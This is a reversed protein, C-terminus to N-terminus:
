TFKSSLKSNIDSSSINITETVTGIFSTSGTNSLSSSSSNISSSPSGTSPSPASFFLSLVESESLARNFFAVKTINAEAYYDQNVMGAILLNGGTDGGIGDGALSWRADEVGNVYLTLYDGDYTQVVHYWIPSWSHEIDTFGDQYHWGTSNAIHPRFKNNESASLAYQTGDNGKSILMRHTDSGGTISVYVSISMQQPNFLGNGTGCDVYDDAGDFNIFSCDQNESGNNNCYGCTDIINQECCEGNLDIVATGGVFGNCDIQYQLQNSLYTIQTQLATIMSHLTAIEAELSEITNLQIDGTVTLDGEVELEGAFLTSILLISLLHKM